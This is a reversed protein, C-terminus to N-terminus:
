VAFDYCEMVNGVLGAVIIRSRSQAAAQTM